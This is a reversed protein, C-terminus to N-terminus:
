GAQSRYNGTAPLDPMFPTGFRKPRAKLRPPQVGPAPTAPRAPAIPSPTLPIPRPAPAESQGPQGLRGTHQAASSSAHPASFPLPAAPEHGSLNQGPAPAPAQGNITMRNRRASDISREMAQLIPRIRQAAPKPNDM